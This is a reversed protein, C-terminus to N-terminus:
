RGNTLNEAINSILAYPRGKYVGLKDALLAPPIPTPDGSIAMQLVEFGLLRDLTAEQWEPDDTVDPSSRMATHPEQSM